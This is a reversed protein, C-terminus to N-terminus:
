RILSIDVMFLRGWATCLYKYKKQFSQGAAAMVKSIRSTIGAARRSGDDDAVSM